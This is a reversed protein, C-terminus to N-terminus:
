AIVDTEAVPACATSRGPREPKLYERLVDRVPDVTDPSQGAYLVAMVREM